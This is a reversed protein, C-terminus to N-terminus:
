KSEFTHCNKTAKLKQQQTTSKPIQITTKSKQQLFNVKSFLSVVGDFIRQIKAVGGFSPIKGSNYCVVSFKISPFASISSCKGEPHEKYNTHYIEFPFAKQVSYHNENM